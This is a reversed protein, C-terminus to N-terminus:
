EKRIWEVNEVLIRAVEGKKCDDLAVGIPIEGCHSRRCFRTWLKTLVDGMKINERTILNIEAKM